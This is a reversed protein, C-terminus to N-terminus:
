IKDREASTPSATAVAMSWRHQMSVRRIASDSVEQKSIRSRALLSCELEPSHINLLRAQHNKKDWKHGQIDCYIRSSRLTLELSWYQSGPIQWICDSREDRQTLQVIQNEDIRMCASTSDRDRTLKRPISTANFKSAANGSTFTAFPNLARKDLEALDTGGLGRVAPETTGKPTVNVPHLLARCFSFGSFARPVRGTTVRRHPCNTPSPGSIQSRRMWKDRRYQLSM